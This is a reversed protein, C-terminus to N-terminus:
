GGGGSKRRFQRTAKSNTHSGDVGHGDLHSSRAQGAAKKKELAAAFVSRTDASPVPVEDTAVAPDADATPAPAPDSDHPHTM